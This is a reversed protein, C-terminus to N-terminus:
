VVKEVKGFIKYLAAEQSKTFGLNHDLKDRLIEEVHEPENVPGIEAFGERHIAVVDPTNQVGREQHAKLSFVDIPPRDFTFKLIIGEQDSSNANGFAKVKALSSSMWYRYNETDTNKFAAAFPSGKEKEKGKGKGKGEEVGMAEWEGQSVKRYYVKPDAVFESIDLRKEFNRHDFERLLNDKEYINALQRQVSPRVKSSKMGKSLVERQSRYELDKKSPNEITYYEGSIVSSSVADNSHKEGPQRQFPDLTTFFEQFVGKPSTSEVDKGRCTFVHLKMTMVIFKTDKSIDKKCEKCFLGM